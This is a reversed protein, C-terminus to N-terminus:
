AGVCFSDKRYGLEMHFYSPIIVITHLHYLFTSEAQM